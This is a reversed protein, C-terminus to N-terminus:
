YELEAFYDLRSLKNLVRVLERMDSRYVLGNPTDYEKLTEDEDLFEDVRLAITYLTSSRLFRSFDSSSPDINLKGINCMIHKLRTINLGNNGNWSALNPPISKWDVLMSRLDNSNEKGLYIKKYFNMYM